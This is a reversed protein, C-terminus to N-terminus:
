WLFGDLTNPYISFYSLKTHVIKIELFLRQYVICSLEVYRYTSSVSVCICSVNM